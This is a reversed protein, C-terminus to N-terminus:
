AASQSGQERFALNGANRHIFVKGHPTFSTCFAHENKKCVQERRTCYKGNQNHSFAQETTQRSSKQISHLITHATTNRQHITSERTHTEKTCHSLFAFLINKSKLIWTKLTQCHQTQVTFSAQFVFSAQRCQLCAENPNYHLKRGDFVSHLYDPIVIRTTM